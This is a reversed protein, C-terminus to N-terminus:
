DLIFELSEGFQDYVCLLEEGAEIDRLAVMPPSKRKGPRGPIPIPEPFIGPESPFEGSDDLWGHNSGTLGGDNTYSAADLDTVIRNREFDTDEYASRPGSDYFVVYSWMMVDCALDPRLIRLFEYFDDMDHFQASLSSDYILEGKRIATTAFVGRGKGPSMRVEYPIKIGTALAHNSASASTPAASASASPPLQKTTTTTPPTWELTSREETVISVYVERMGIWTDEDNIPFHTRDACGLFEKMEDPTKELWTENHHRSEVSRLVRSMRSGSNNSAKHWQWQWQWQSQSQLLWAILRALVLGGLVWFRSPSRPALPLANNVNNNNLSINTINSSKTSKVVM